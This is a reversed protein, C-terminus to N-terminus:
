RTTSSMWRKTKVKKVNFQNTSKSLATVTTPWIMKRSRINKMAAVKKLSHLLFGKFMMTRLVMMMTIVIATIVLAAAKNKMKMMGNLKRAAMSVISIKNKKRNTMMMLISCKLRFPQCTSGSIIQVKGFRILEM